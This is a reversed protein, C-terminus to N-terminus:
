EGPRHEEGVIGEVARRERADLGRSEGTALTGLSIPGFRTRVLREVVLDLAECMRRVERSRGEAITVELEWRRNGAARAEVEIPMVLGDDLEVGRRALRAAEVANGQVTAVYTREVQRSPHSLRHAARGDTTLLLVGETLFDLRGVYTLGPVDKVVDFVTKRGEPDRRTTMVGPPKNLVIWVAEALPAEVRQDDVTVEDRAPDVSQGVRAVVGNVRVRGAAVLEEAKRRSTVGARALLRHIRVPGTADIAAPM